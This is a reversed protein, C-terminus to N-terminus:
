TGSTATRREEGDEHAIGHVSHGDLGKGDFLQGRTKPTAGWVAKV